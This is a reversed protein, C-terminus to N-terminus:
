YSTSGPVDATEDAARLTVAVSAPDAARSLVASVTTDVPVDATGPIPSQGSAALPADAASTYVLDVFYNTGGWNQDPPASGDGYRFLGNEGTLSLAGVTRPEAFDGSTYAYGGDPAYRSVTFTAGASVQVPSDLYATHW